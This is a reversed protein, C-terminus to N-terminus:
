AKELRQLIIKLTKEGDNFDKIDNITDLFKKKAEKLGDGVWNNAGYFWSNDLYKDLNKLYTDFSKSSRFKASKTMKTIKDVLPKITKAQEEEKQKQEKEQKEAKDQKRKKEDFKKQVNTMMKVGSSVKPVNYKSTEGQNWKKLLEVNKLEGVKTGFGDMLDIGNWDYKQGKIMVQQITDGFPHNKNNEDVMKMYEKDSISKKPAPKPTAKKPTAPKPTAKKPAPKPTSKKPTSGEWHGEKKLASILDAKKQTLKIKKNLSHNRIYDKMQAVTFKENPKPM